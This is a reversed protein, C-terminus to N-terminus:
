RGCRDQMVPRPSRPHPAPVLRPPPSVVSPVVTPYPSNRRVPMKRSPTAMRPRPPPDTPTNRDPTHGHNDHLAREADLVAGLAHARGLILIIVSRNVGYKDAQADIEVNPHRAARVARRIRATQNPSLHEVEARRAQATTTM